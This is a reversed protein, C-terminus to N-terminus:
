PAEIRFLQQGLLISDGSVIVRKEKVRVYTGNSSGLDKIYVKGGRRALVAHSGSVYGDDPFRIHGRDRGLYIDDDELLFSNAFSNSGVMQALRGWVDIGTRSALLTVDGEQPEVGVMEERGDFRLLEQGIRFTDGTQLEMEGIIRVYMGNTSPLPRVSLESGRYTFEAHQDALFPDDPFNLHGGGRGLVTAGDELDYTAGPSGDDRLLVLRGRTRGSRQLSERETAPRVPAGCSACFSAEPLLPRDCESCKGVPVTAAQVDVESLDPAVPDSAAEPAPVASLELSADGNSGSEDSGSGEIVTHARYEGESPVQNVDTDPYHESEEVTYKRSRREVGQKFGKLSGGCQRCFRFYEENPTGCDSCENL